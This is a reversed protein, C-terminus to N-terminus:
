VPEQVPMEPASGTAPKPTSSSAWRMLMWGLFASIISGALVGIIADELLHEQFALKSVFLAVTFGIGAVAGGALIHKDTLGNPLTAIGAATAIRTALYIGLPKGVVLGLIVGLTPRSGFAMAISEGSLHIGANALAFIPIIIFSSYPSLLGALRNTVAVSEKIRWNADRASAPDVANDGSLIDEVSEFTRARLLPKAPALLGLAVGAITAHVGSQLTAYWIVIGLAVYIPTYWVTFRKLVMVAILGALALALWDFRLGQSYFLAIVAIAGIDDVIALTLLFLKLKQPVIPGLMALVGVAFAIDTAMPVGWGSAADTGFAVATFLLAPMIMGGLAAIAPLAAVKPDSLDGNVLESKIELGVVFFFIVMLVDNVTHELSHNYFDWGGITLHLHTEWLQHYSAGLEGPLNAWILAVATALLLLVGSAAEQALFRVMPRAVVKALTTDGGSWAEERVQISGESM